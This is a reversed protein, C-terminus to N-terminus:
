FRKGDGTVSKFRSSSKAFTESSEQDDRITEHVIRLEDQGNYLLDCGHADDVFHELIVM